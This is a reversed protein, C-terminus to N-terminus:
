NETEYRPKSKTKLLTSSNNRLEMLGATSSNEPPDVYSIDLEVKVELCWKFCHRICHFRKLGNWVSKM